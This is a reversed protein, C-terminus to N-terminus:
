VGGAGHVNKNEIGAGFGFASHGALQLGYRVFQLGPAVGDRVEVYPREVDSRAGSAHMAPCRVFAQHILVIGFPHQVTQALRLCQNDPRGAIPAVQGSRELGQQVTQGVSEDACRLGWVPQGRPSQVSPTRKDEHGGGGRPREM